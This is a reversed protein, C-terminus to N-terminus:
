CASHPLDGNAEKKRKEIEYEYREWDDITNIGSTPEELILVPPYAHRDDKREEATNRRWMVDVYGVHQVSTDPLQRSRSAPITLLPELFATGPWRCMRLPNQEPLRPAFGSDADPHAALLEIAADIHEVTGSHNSTPRLAQVIIDPKGDKMRKRALEWFAHM